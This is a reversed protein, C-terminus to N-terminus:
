LRSNYLIHVIKTIQCNITVSFLMRLEQSTKIGDTMTAVLTMQAEKWSDFSHDGSSNPHVRDGGHRYYIQKWADIRTRSETHRGTLHAVGCAQSYWWGRDEFVVGM